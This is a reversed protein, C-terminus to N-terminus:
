RHSNDSGAGPAGAPCLASLESLCGAPPLGSRVKSGEVRLCPTHSGMHGRYFPETSAGTLGQGASGRMPPTPGWVGGASPRALRGQAPWPLPAHGVTRILSRKSDGNHLKERKIPSYEIIYLVIIIFSLCQHYVCLNVPGLHCDLVFYFNVPFALYVVLM